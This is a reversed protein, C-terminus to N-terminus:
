RPDGGADLHKRSLDEGHDDVLGYVGEDCLYKEVNGDWAAERGANGASLARILSCSWFTAM